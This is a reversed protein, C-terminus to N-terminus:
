VHSGDQPMFDAVLLKGSDISTNQELDIKRVNEPDTILEFHIRTKDGELKSKHLPFMVAAKNQASSCYIIPCKAREGFAIKVKDESTGNQAYFSSTNAKM